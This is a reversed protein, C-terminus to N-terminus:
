CAAHRPVQNDGCCRKYRKGSGCPCTSNRSLKVRTPPKLPYEQETFRQMVVRKLLGLERQTRRAEAEEVDTWNRADFYVADESRSVNSAGSETAIGVIHQTGPHELKTVVCYSTLLERRATRYEEESINPPHGMALFVYVPDGENSALIIRTGNRDGPTISVRDLLARALMRRRTRPERAMFRLIREQEELPAPSAFHQTGHMMHYSFKEILDDWFYSVKDADRQAAREPSTLFKNWLGEVLAIANCEPPFVFDHHKDPNLYKLYHGLLEEEGAASIVTGSCFLKEKKDLYWVFDTITDLTKLVIDLTTDDLVHVYGRDPDGVWGITFPVGSHAKGVVDSRLM